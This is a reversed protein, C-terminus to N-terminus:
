VRDKSDGLLLTRHQPLAEVEVRRVPALTIGLARAVQIAGVSLYLTGTTALPSGSWIVPRLASTNGAVLGHTFCTDAIVRATQEALEPSPFEALYYDTIPDPM